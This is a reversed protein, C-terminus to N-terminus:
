CRAATLSPPLWHRGGEVAEVRSVRGRRRNAIPVVDVGGALRRRRDRTNSSARAPLTQHTRGRRDARARRLRYNRTTRGPRCGAADYVVGSRKPTQARSIETCRQSSAVRTHGPQGPRTM